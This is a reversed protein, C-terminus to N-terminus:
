ITEEDYVSQSVSIKELEKIEHKLRLIEDRVEAKTRYEKNM